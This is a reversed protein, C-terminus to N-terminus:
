AEHDDDLYLFTDRHLRGVTIDFPSMQIIISDGERLEKGDYQKMSPSISVKLETGDKLIASLNYRDTMSMVEAKARIIRM